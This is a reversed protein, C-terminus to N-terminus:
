SALIKRADICEDIHGLWWAAEAHVDLRDAAALGRSDNVAPHSAAYAAQWDHRALAERAAALGAPTSTPESGSDEM